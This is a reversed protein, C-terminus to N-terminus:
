QPPRTEEHFLSYQRIQPVNCSIRLLRFVDLDAKAEMVKLLLKKSEWAMNLLRSTLLLMRMLTSIFWIPKCDLLLSALLESVVADQVQSQNSQVEVQSNGSQIQTQIM